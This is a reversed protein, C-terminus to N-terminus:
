ALMPWVQKWRGHGLEDRSPYSLHLNQYSFKELAPLSPFLRRSFFHPHLQFMDHSNRHLRLATVANAKPLNSRSGPVVVWTKGGLDNFSQLDTSIELVLQRTGNGSARDWTSLSVLLTEIVYAYIHYKCSERSERTFVVNM